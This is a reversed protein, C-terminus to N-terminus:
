DDRLDFGDGSSFGNNHNRPIVTLWDLWLGHSRVFECAIQKGLRIERDEAVDDTVKVLILSPKVKAM